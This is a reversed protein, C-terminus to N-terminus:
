IHTFPLPSFDTVQACIKLLNCKIVILLLWVVYIVNSFLSTSKRSIWTMPWFINELAKHHGNFKIPMAVQRYQFCSQFTAYIFHAIPAITIELFRALLHRKRTTITFWQASCLRNLHLTDWDAGVMIESVCLMRHWM